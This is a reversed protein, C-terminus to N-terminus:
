SSPGDQSKVEKASRLFVESWLLDSTQYTCLGEFARSLVGSNGVEAPQRRIVVQAGSLAQQRHGIDLELVILIICLAPLATLRRFWQFCFPSAGV